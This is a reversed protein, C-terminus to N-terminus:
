SISRPLTRVARRSSPRGSVSFFFSPLLHLDHYILDAGVLPCLQLPLAPRQPHLQDEALLHGGRFVGRQRRAALAHGDQALAADVSGQQVGVLGQAHLVEGGTGDAVVVNIQVVGAGDAEPHAVGAVGGVAHRVERDHHDEHTQAVVLLGQPPSLDVVEGQRTELAPLHFVQGDTDDAGAADAGLHDSVEGAEAAPDQGIVQPLVRRHLRQHGIHVKLGQQGLGVHDGEM